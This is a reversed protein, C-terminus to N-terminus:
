KNSRASSPQPSATSPSAFSRTRARHHRESPSQTLQVEVRSEAKVALVLSIRERQEMFADFMAYMSCADICLSASCETHQMCQQRVEQATMKEVLKKNLEVQLSAVSPM